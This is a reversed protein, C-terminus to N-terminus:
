LVDTHTEEAIIDLSMDDKKLKLRQGWPVSMLDKLTTVPRPLAAGRMSCTLLISFTVLIACVIAVTQLWRKADVEAVAACAESPLLEAPLKKGAAAAAKAAASANKYFFGQCQLLWHLEEHTYSSLRFTKLAVQESPRKSPPKGNCQHVQMEPDMGRVWSVEVSGYM